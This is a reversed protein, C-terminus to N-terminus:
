VEALARSDPEGETPAACVPCFKADAALAHGCSRCAAVPRESVPRGCNACFHSGWALPAGCLCRPTRARRPELLADLQHLREEIHAVEACQEYLLQERFSDQRYM